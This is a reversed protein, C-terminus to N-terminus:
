IMLVARRGPSGPELLYDLTCAAGVTNPLTGPDGAASVANIPPPNAPFGLRGHLRSEHMFGFAAIRREDPVVPRRYGSIQVASRCCVGDVSSGPPPDSMWYEIGM